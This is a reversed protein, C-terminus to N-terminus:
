APNELSHARPALAEAHEESLELRDSSTDILTDGMAKENIADILLSPTVGAGEALHDIISTHGAALHAVVGREADTLADMLVVYDEDAM